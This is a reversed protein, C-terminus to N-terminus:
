GRSSVHRGLIVHTYGAFNLTRDVINAHNMAAIAVLHPDEIHFWRLRRRM